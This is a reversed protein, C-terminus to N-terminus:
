KGLVVIKEIKGKTVNFARYMPKEPNDPNQRELEVVMRVILDGAQSRWVKHLRGTFRDEPLGLETAREAESKARTNSPRFARYHIHLRTGGTGDENDAAEDALALTELVQAETMTM